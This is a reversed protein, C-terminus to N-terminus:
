SATFQAEYGELRTTLTNARAITETLQTKLASIESDDDEDEDEDEPM